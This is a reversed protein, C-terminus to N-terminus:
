GPPLLRAPADVLRARLYEGLGKAQADTRTSAAVGRGLLGVVVFNLAHLNALRHREVRLASAEPVLERFRDVSLYGDLWEFAEASRCWVGVNANGGKDGSRAGALRGLPVRVTPEAPSGAVPLVVSPTAPFAPAAAPAPAPARAPAPPIVIRQDGIVAVHEVASAPVSTPWYVGFMSAGGPASTAFFGPYSALAMEVVAGSFARGVRQEDRSTVTVRLYSLADDNTPPDETAVPGSLAVDVEDFSERGGPVLSFLTRLALEAKDDRDLGTLVFTMSNRYGGIYNLAVKLSDPPPEGKVGRIRVRDTGDDVLEITDFRATVDPNQYAPGGIEYLLQATVTGISVLGGTGPHKTIVSSGDRDIEAIPFGPRELGPVEGFWAYNGGTAQAGCEIVHGAVVAGALRDWEGAKWDFAWAAPGVALAADTVRGTVVVDAGRRLCEAIGFGGLYANATVPEVGQKSALVDWPEGTDLNIFECGSARLEALHPVLDDGEVHAVTARIGLREALAAVSAACGAPDLGGANSVVKIGREICLGLVQELQALFTAAWAGEPRKMRNRALILMTLEALWDGTLVDIPGGEVMERAASLRDGYFGSCNAIRLPRDFTM